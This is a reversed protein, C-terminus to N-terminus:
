KAPQAESKVNEPTEKAEAEKVIRVKEKLVDFDKKLEEYRAEMGSNIQNHRKDWELTLVKRRVDDYKEILADGSLSELNEIEMQM